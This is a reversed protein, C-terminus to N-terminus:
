TPTWQTPLWAALLTLAIQALFFPVFLLMTVLMRRAAPREGGRRDHQYRALAAAAADPTIGPLRVYSTLIGPMSVVPARFRIDCRREVARVKAYQIFYMIGFGLLFPASTFVSYSPPCRLGVCDPYLNIGYWGVAIYAVVFGLPLLM